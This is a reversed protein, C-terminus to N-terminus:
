SSVEEMSQALRIANRLAHELTPSSVRYDGDSSHSSVPVNRAQVVPLYHVGKRLLLDDSWPYGWDRDFTEVFATGPRMYISNTSNAGHPTVVVDAAHFHQIQEEVTLEEPVVTVFGYRELLEDAGLLKRTGVRKVFLRKPLGHALTPLSAEIRNVAGMLAPASNRSFTDFDRHDQALVFLREFRVPAQADFDDM